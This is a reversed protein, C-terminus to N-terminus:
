ETKTLGRARDVMLSLRNRQSAVQVALSVQGIARDLNHEGARDFRRKDWGFYSENLADAAFRAALEWCIREWGPVIARWEADTICAREAYGEMAAAFLPISLTADTAEESAVNCWSRMADGLEIDLTGWALTDLDILAVAQGDTFRLNSIKLDGHIVRTPLGQVRPTHSWGDFIRKSLWNVDSFLRHEPHSLLAQSLTHMHNDTDHAGARESRFSWAFGDTATHFAAVLAGASRADHVSTLRTLTRDGIPTLCRWVGGDIATHWLAGDRTPILRTTPLGQEMLHATVAEIDEHVLPSFIETNLRQLVGVIAGGAHVLVTENILGVDHAELTADPPFDWADKAQQAGSM